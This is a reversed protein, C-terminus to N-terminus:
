IKHIVLSSSLCDGTEVIIDTTVNSINKIEIVDTPLISIIVDMTIQNANPIPVGFRTNAIEVGNKFFAWRPFTDAM